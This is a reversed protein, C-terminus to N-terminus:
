FNGSRFDDLNTKENTWDQYLFDAVWHRTVLRVGCPPFGSNKILHYGLHKDEFFGEKKRSSSGVDFLTLHGEEMDFVHYADFHKIYNKIKKSGFHMRAMFIFEKIKAYEEQDAYGFRQWDSYFIEMVRQPIKTL